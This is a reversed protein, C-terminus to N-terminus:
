IPQRIRHMSFLIFLYVYDQTRTVDLCSVTAELAIGDNMRGRYIQFHEITHKFCNIAKSCYLCLYLCVPIFRIKYIPRFGTYTSFCVICGAYVFKCVDKKLYLVNIIYTGLSLYEMPSYQIPIQAKAEPLGYTFKRYKIWSLEWIFRANWWWLLLLLLFGHSKYIFWCQTNVPFACLLIFPFIPFM